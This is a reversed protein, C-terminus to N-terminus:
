GTIQATEREVVFRIARLRVAASVISANPTQNVDTVKYPGDAM